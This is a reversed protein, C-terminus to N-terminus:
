KQKKGDPRRFLTANHTQMQRIQREWCAKILSSAAHLKNFQVLRKLATSYVNLLMNKGLGPNRKRMFVGFVNPQPQRHFIFKCSTICLEVLGVFWINVVVVGTDCNTVGGYCFAQSANAQCMSIDKCISHGTSLSVHTLGLCIEPTVCFCIM